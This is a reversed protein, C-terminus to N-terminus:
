VHMVASVPYRWLMGPSGIAGVRCLPRDEAFHPKGM